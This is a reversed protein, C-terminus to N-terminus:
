PTGSLETVRSSQVTALSTRGNPVQGGEVEELIPGVDDDVQKGSLVALDWDDMASTACRWVRNGEGAININPLYIQQQRYQM